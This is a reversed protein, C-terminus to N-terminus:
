SRDGCRQAWDPRSQVISFVTVVHPRVPLTQHYLPDDFHERAQLEFAPAFSTAWELPVILYRPRLQVFHCLKGVRDFHLHAAAGDNLGVVDIIRMSRPAFFRTAGAGEVAVIADRELTTAIYHGVNTHLARTDESLQRAVVSLERDQIGSVIGWPLVLAIGMWRPIVVLGFPAIIGPFAAFPAFYRSEYFQTGVHLPRTTAIAIWTVLMALLLLALEFRRQSVDRWVALAVLGVGSLSVVWAQWPLVEYQLYALGLLGGGQGKIYQANPWPYGSVVLDYAIWLALAGFAGALGCLPSQWHGTRRHLREAILGGAFVIVFVITEPRAWVALGGLICAGIPRDCVLIWVWSGLVAAALPVEMGSTAGQLLTPTMAVLCGGLMTLSWLPLPHALDARRRTLEMTTAAGVMATWAHLLVGLLQVSRVPDSEPALPVPWVSLVFLWLPSSFGTEWDGPNYSLGDGWRVSKVYSLHIYADDIVFDTANAMM